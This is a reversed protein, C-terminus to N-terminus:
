SYEPYYGDTCICYNIVLFPQMNNHSAGNGIPKITQPNLQNISDGPPEAYFTGLTRVDDKEYFMNSLFNGNPIRKTKEDPDKPDITMLANATHTHVPIEEAQLPIGAYGGQQGIEYTEGRPLTGSGVLVRRKIDPVGFTTRGDGGYRNGIVTFLATNWSISYTKGDCLAWGVPAFPLAFPRIEGLFADM